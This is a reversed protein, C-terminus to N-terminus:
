MDDTFVVKKNPFSIPYAAIKLGDWKAATFSFISTLMNKASM